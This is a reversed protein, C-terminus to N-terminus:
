KTLHKKMIYHKIQYYDKIFTENTDARIIKIKEKISDHIKKNEYNGKYYTIIKYASFLFLGLFLLSLFSLVVKKM